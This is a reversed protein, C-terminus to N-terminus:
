IKLYIQLSYLSKAKLPNRPLQFNMIQTKVSRLIYILCIMGLYFFLTEEANYEEFGFMQRLKEIEQDMLGALLQDFSPTNAGCQTQPASSMSAKPQSSKGKKSAHGTKNAKKSKAEKQKKTVSSSSRPEVDEPGFGSFENLDNLFVEDGENAM